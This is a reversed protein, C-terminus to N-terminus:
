LRLERINKTGGRIKSLSISKEKGEKVDVMLKMADDIKADYIIQVEIEEVNVYVLAVRDVEDLTSKNFRELM